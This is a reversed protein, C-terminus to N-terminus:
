IVKIETLRAFTKRFMSELRHRFLAMDVPQGIEQALSTTLCHRIGCPIILDFYSLDTNLNIAFGHSTIGAVDVKVGIAALKASRIGGGNQAPAWVGTYGPERYAPQNFTALTQIIVAELRRLYTHYDLNYGKLDLIPYGVLQGPGHYTIDGGRDVEYLAIKQAALREQDILLHEWKGSRGMTFTHPHELLLLTDPIHNAARAQSLERQLDWAAQYDIRGLYRVDLQGANLM